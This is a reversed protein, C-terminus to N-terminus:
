YEDWADFFQGRRWVLEISDSIRRDGLSLIAELQTGKAENPRYSVARDRISRKLSVQKHDIAEVTDQGHWQFPTFPEPVFEPVGKNTVDRMRQSGAEPAFTLGTKRVKNIEQVLEVCDKDARLSPLSVGVRSDAYKGILSRVVDDVRSYDATSLSVLSIDEHGT